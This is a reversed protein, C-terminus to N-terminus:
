RPITAQAAAVKAQYAAIVAPTWVVQAIQRVKAPYAAVNQGPVLVERFHNRAIETGDEFVVKSRRLEIQGDDMIGMYWEINSTFAM